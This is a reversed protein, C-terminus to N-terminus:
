PYFAGNQPLFQDLKSRNPEDTPKDISEDLQNGTSDLQRHVIASFLSPMGDGLQDAADAPRDKQDAHREEAQIEKTSMLGTCAPAPIRLRAIENPAWLKTLSKM